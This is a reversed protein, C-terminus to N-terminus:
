LAIWPDLGSPHDPDVGRAIASHYSLLQAVALLPIGEVSASLKRGFDFAAVTGDIASPLPEASYVIVGAGRAMLDKILAEQYVFGGASVCVIGLTNKDALVIPGHRVDLVHKCVSPMYAIENFALAGEEALGYAEADALVIAQRYGRAAIERIKPGIASIYSDGHEAVYFIDDIIEQRGAAIATVLQGAGALNTVSRTQCVSEDFAWPIELSLDSVEAVSSGSTEIISLVSCGYGVKRIDTVANVVEHTSGSRSATIILADQLIPAYIERHLMLDGSAVAIAPCELLIDATCALTKCVSYSSGCGTFIIRKFDRRAFFEEIEKKRSLIYETTKKLAKYQDMIEPYTKNEM